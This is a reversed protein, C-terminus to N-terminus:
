IKESTENENVGSGLNQTETEVQSTVKVEEPIKPENQKLLETDETEIFNTNEVLWSIIKLSLLEDMLSIMKGEKILIERVKQNPMNYEKSFSEIESEIEENSLIINENKAIAGLVLTTKIRRVAEQQFYPKKIFEEWSKQIESEPVKQEILKKGEEMNWMAGLERMIMSSPIDVKAESVIKTILTQQKKLDQLEEAQNELDKKIREKLDNVTQFDGLTKAFDDNIEPFKPEKIQTIKTKFLAQKNQLEVSTYDSPFTIIIDKEEDINMGILQEPFGNIFSDKRVELVLGEVNSDKIPEGDVFGSINVSVVDGEKVARNNILELPAHKKRLIEIQENIDEEKIEKKPTIYMTLNKYEGLTVDPKVEVIANIIIENEDQKVIQLNPNTIPDIKMEIIADKYAQLSVEDLIEKKIQAINIYREIIKRPAKGKRFGPISIQKGYNRIIQEYKNTVVKGDLEIIIHVQNGEQKEIKAKVM